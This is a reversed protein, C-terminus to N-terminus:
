DLRASPPMRHSGGLVGGLMEIIRQFSQQEDPAHSPNIETLTLARWNPLDCFGGLLGTLSSMDLGGRLDTIEAIPFKDYDLVDFDVHVLIRDFSKAWERIRTVVATPDAIVAALPEIQINLRDIVEREPASINNTAILRIAGVDLMPRREAITALQDNAGAIGLIHAMGMWDLIGDGTEPTNLDADLDVYLLGVSSGDGIAGAVVGLEVTCDGGLVLINHDDALASSVTTSLTGIVRAVMDVNAAQLNQEDRIWETLQGDGRDVVELGRDSLQSVIRHRRFAAPALEQGPGYAGASSPAGILSLPRSHEISNTNM